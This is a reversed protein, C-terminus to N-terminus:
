KNRSIFQKINQTKTVSFNQGIRKSILLSLDKNTNNLNNKVFSLLDESYKVKTKEKLKYKYVYSYFTSPNVVINYTLEILKRTEEITWDKLTERIYDHYKILSPTKMVKGKKVILPGHQRNNIGWIFGTCLGATM